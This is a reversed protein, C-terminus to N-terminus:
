ALQAAARLEEPRSARASSARILRSPLIEEPSREVRALRLEPRTARRQQHVFFLADHLGGQDL